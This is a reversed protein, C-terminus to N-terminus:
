AKGPGGFVKSRGAVASLNREKFLWKGGVKVVQDDYEAM